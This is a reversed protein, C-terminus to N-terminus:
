VSPTSKEVNSSRIYNFQTLNSIRRRVSYALELVKGYGDTGFLQLAAIALRLRMYERSSRLKPYHAIAEQCFHIAQQFDKDTTQM